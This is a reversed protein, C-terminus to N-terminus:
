RVTERFAAAFQALEAAPIESVALYNLGGQSWAETNYGNRATRNSGLAGTDAPWVFLNIAHQRRHFVLAAARHGDFQDLRGGTLPFGAAALDAVPPSFDLKGTFWPKVTHQDTSAVDTLHDAQLSRVHDNVAEDLLRGARAHSNGSAFGVSFVLAVAAALGVASWFANPFAFPRAPREIALPAGAAELTARIKGALHAPATFRPLSGRLADRRDRVVGAEKACAACTRLHEALELHRVLDLEGDHDAELLLRAQNCDM